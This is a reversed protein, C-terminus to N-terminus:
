VGGLGLGGEDLDHLLELKLFVKNRLQLLLVGLQVGLELLLLIEILGDSRISVEVGLIEDLRMILHSLELPLKSNSGVLDLLQLILDLRLILCEGLLVVGQSLFGLLLLVLLLIVDEQVLLVGGQVLALLLELVLDILELKDDLFGFLLLELQLLIVVSNDLLSVGESGLEDSSVIFQSKEVLLDLNELRGEGLSLLLVLLPNFIDSDELESDSIQSRLQSDGLLTGTLDSIESLLDIIELLLEQVLSQLHLGQRLLKLVREVVM